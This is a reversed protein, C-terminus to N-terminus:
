GGFVFDNYPPMWVNQYLLNEKNYEGTEFINRKLDIKNTRKKCDFLGKMHLIHFSVIFLKAFDKNGYFISINEM